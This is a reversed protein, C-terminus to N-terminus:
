RGQQDVTEALLRVLNEEITGTITELPLHTVNTADFPNQLEVAIQDLSLMPYAALMTMLPVLWDNSMRHLLALPLTVVFLLIFRRVMISYVRPLPAKLIRECGGIHDILLARERELQLFVFRDLGSGDCASRLRKALEFAVRTPMHASRAVEAEAAAGILEKLHDDPKAGRLSFRSVYPFAIIWGIFGRRWEADAPGYALAGAGLNRSQNVIGGWLKRAEWWRDYGANTRFVLLLGLVAGAIEYPGVELRLSMGTSREVYLTAQCIAAAILGVLLVEKIVRPTIAGQLAVAERWFSQPEM